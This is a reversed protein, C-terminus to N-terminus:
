LKLWRVFWALPDRWDALSWDMEAEIEHSPKGCLEEIKQMMEEHSMFGMQEFELSRKVFSTMKARLSKIAQAVPQVM